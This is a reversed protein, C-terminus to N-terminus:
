ATAEREASLALPRALLVAVIAGALVVETLGATSFELQIIGELEAIAVAAGGVLFARNFGGLVLASVGRVLLASMFGISMTVLPSILIAAVAALAGSLGWTLMSCANVPLGIVQASAPTMAIAQLYIGIRTHRYLLEVGAFLAIAVAGALLQHRTILLGGVEIPTGQILPPQVRLGAGFIEAAMVLLFAGIGFTGLMTTLQSQDGLPRAVLRETLVGLAASVAIAGVIAIPVPLGHDQSVTAFVFAGIMGTEGHAFNIRRSGDYVVVMGLSFLAYILGVFVGNVLVQTM